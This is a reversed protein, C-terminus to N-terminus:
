RMVVLAFAILLAAYAIPGSASLAFRRWGKDRGFRFGLAGGAPGGVVVGGCTAGVVSLGQNM